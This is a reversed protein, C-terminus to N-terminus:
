HVAVAAFRCSLSTALTATALVAAASHYSLLPPYSLCGVLGLVTNGVLLTPWAGPTCSAVPLVSDSCRMSCVSGYSAGVTFSVETASVVCPVQEAGRQGSGQSLGM